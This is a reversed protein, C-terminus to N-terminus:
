TKSIKKQKKNLMDTEVLQKQKAVKIHSVKECRKCQPHFEPTNPLLGPSRGCQM